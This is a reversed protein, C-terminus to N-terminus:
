EIGVADFGSITREIPIIQEILDKESDVEDENTPSISISSSQFHHREVPSTRTSKEDSNDQEEEEGDSSEQLMSSFRVAPLSRPRSLKKLTTEREIEQKEWLDRTEGPIVGFTPHFVFWEKRGEVEKLLSSGGVEELPPVNDDSEDTQYLDTSLLSFPLRERLWLPVQFHFEACTLRMVRCCFRFSM